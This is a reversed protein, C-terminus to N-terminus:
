IQRPSFDFAAIAAGFLLNFYVVVNSVEASFQAM